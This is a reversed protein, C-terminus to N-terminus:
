DILRDLAPGSIAVVSPAPMSTGGDPWHSARVLNGDNTEGPHQVSLFLTRGDPSFCPGTLEAGNPASAVRIPRGAERGELPIYFLSNNGFDSYPKGGMGVVSMDTCIWLGGKRDFALNDPCAVGSRKGGTLFTSAKFELASHDNQEVKLISGFRDGKKYNNTLAVFVHGTVPDIKVDEPRALPTAGVIKAARRTHVLLDLQDKFQSSLRADLKRDLPLWQGTQVNAVYLIGRDLSGPKEAIFKYLHEDAADDGMYVVTRGDPTLANTASEHAFRGLGLLKHASGSKLDVEVVWGYHEPPLPFYKIWSLYPDSEKVVRQDNELVAEGYFNQYNEECSLVTGWATVGGGCGGLTGVAKAKGLVQGGRFPIMTNADIRRNYKSDRVLNWTDGEQRLHVVSGGVERREIEMQAKTREQGPRWDSNFYPDHYEHNVWMLGEGSKGSLPLYALFDNNFGFRAGRSNLPDRWRLLVQYKLGEALLLQDEDSPALPKFLSSHGSVLPAGSVCASLWTGALGMGVASRGMFALFERRSKEELSM